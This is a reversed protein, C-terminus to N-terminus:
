FLYNFFIIVIKEKIDLVLKYYFNFSMAIQNTKYKNYTNITFEM